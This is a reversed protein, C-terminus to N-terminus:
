GEPQTIEPKAGVQRFSDLDEQAFVTLDPLIMSLRHEPPTIRVM